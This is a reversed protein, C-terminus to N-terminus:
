VLSLQKYALSEAMHAVDIQSTGALDAITQAVKIIKFYGRASVGYRQCAQHLLDYAQPTPTILDTMDSPQLRSNLSTTWLHYRSHQKDRAVIVRNRVSDSTEAQGPKTQLQNLPVEAVRVVLDVRDMIPGSLRALYRYRDAPSCRCDKQSSGYYGCPCPNAAAVLTFQAPYLVSGSARSITVVGDELPQRLSELSSHSFEPFEDLFLVGHHALSIEGPKLQSGGGILGVTSTTHHPHRFPRHAVLGQDNTLGSISYINTVEIAESETLPPLISPLSHAMLSKGAGPPGILLVNHGGAAAIELARKAATQGIIDCFNNQTQLNVPVFPTPQLRNLQHTQGSSKLYESLHNIPFIEIGSLIAVENANAQPLVVQQFGMTRAALTLPLAGRIPKLTGDLSLEGLFITQDTDVNIEQYMKLLAVVIALELSSNTKRLSAPALNVITRKARIRVGCNTLASTIRERAEEVAQSPLGIIILNPTGQTGDVEVEIKIPTLGQTVASFTRALMVALMFDYGSM